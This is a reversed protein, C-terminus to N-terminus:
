RVRTLLSGKNPHQGRGKQVLDVLRAVVDIVLQPRDHHIMHGSGSALVLEANSSLSLWQSSGRLWLSRHAEPSGLEGFYQRDAVVIFLPRESPFSEFQWTEAAAGDRERGVVNPVRSRGEVLTLRREEREQASLLEMRDREFGPPPADLLVVGSVDEPFLTAYRLAHIGGMSHGVLVTPGSVDLSALIRRVEQAFITPTRPGDVDPSLGLGPRDFTVVSGLTTLQGILPAWTRSDLGAGAALVITPGEGAYICAHIRADGVAECRVQGASAGATMISVVGMLMVQRLM